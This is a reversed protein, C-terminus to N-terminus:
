GDLEITRTEAQKQRLINDLLDEWDDPLPPLELRAPNIDIMVAPLPVAQLEPADEEELKTIKILNGVAKGMESLNSKEKAQRFHEYAMELILQRHQEKTAKIPKGFLALAAEVDKRATAINLDHEAALLQATKRASHSDDFMLAWAYRMRNYAKEDRENLIFEERDDRAWIEIRELQTLGEPFHKKAPRSM